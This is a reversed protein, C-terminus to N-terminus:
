MRERISEVEGKHRAQWELDRSELVARENM